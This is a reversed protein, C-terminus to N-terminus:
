RGCARRLRRRHRGRGLTTASSSTSRRSCTTSTRTRAPLVHTSTATTTTTPRASSRRPRAVAARLDHARRRGARDRRRAAAPRRRRLDPAHRPEPPDAAREAEDHLEEPRLRDAWVGTANVVNTPACSSRRAAARTARACAPRADADEILLGEVGLDNACVAGFREAEGLVTLVLRSTTPRATTSSTAPPRSAGACRPCCSACRRAPSSATATPAGATPRCGRRGRRREVSM